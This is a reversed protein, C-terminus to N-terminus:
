RYIFDSELSSTDLTDAMYVDIGELLLEACSRETSHLILTSVSAHSRGDSGIYPTIMRGNSYAYYSGDDLKTLEFDRFCVVSSGGSLELEEDRYVTMGERYSIPYYFSESSLCRVFGEHSTLIGNTYGDAELREAVYDAIFANEFWGLTIFSVISNEKALELYENSVRLIVRDNGLLELKISAEDNVFTLLSDIYEREDANLEPDFQEAELDSQSFCLSLYESYIPAFYLERRGELRELASYLAHELKLETNPNLSIFRLNIVNEFSKESNFLKYAETLLSSYRSKVLKMEAAANKGFNYQLVFDEACSDKGSVEVTQWGPETSLLQTFATVLSVAAIIGFVVALILRRKTNKDSLEIHEVKPYQLRKM